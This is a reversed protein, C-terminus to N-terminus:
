PSEETDEASGHEVSKVTIRFFVQVRETSDPVSRRGHGIEEWAMKPASAEAYCKGLSASEISVPRTWWSTSGAPGPLACAHKAM